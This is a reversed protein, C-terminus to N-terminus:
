SEEQDRDTQDASVDETTIPLNRLSNLEKDKERTTSVLTKIQRRLRYREVIGYVGSVVVGFVFAITVIFYLSMSSSTYNVFHLNLRFAVEKSMAEHNQVIVIVVLLLLVIVLLFRLHKM